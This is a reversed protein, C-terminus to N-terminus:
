KNLIVDMANSTNKVMLMPAGAYPFMEGTVFGDYGIQKFADIVVPWNVDGEMLDVFGQDTGISKKFDKFHVKKIRSGLCKIWQEPFGYILCNGVDFYAGVFPSDFQDIFDKMEKPSLLFKNWVNELAMCVGVKEAFPILTKIAKTANEYCVEYDVPVFDPNFFVDVAGPVVLVSDVGLWSAVELYKKTNEIAENAVKSDPSSLSCDWYMGTCLSSIKIGTEKAAAVLEDCFEKTTNLGLEDAPAFALEISEFGNEKALKIAEKCTTGAPFAWFSIGKIM